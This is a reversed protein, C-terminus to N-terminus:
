AAAGKDRPWASLAVIWLGVINFLPVFALISWFPSFGIRSLIRGIPYVILIVGVVFIIWHWLSWSGMMWVEGGMM